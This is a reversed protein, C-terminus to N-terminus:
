RARFLSKLWFYVKFPPSRHYRDLIVQLEDKHRIVQELYADKEKIVREFYADKERIVQELFRDKDQVIRELETQYLGYDSARHPNKCFEILPEAVREWALQRRAKEFSHSYMQRLNPTDLLGMLTDVWQNVDAYDVTQGIGYGEIIESTADGKTAVVPLGAWTYDLVRTRFALRAEIHEFHASIGIDAELLYNQREDYAVWDNFFVYRDYLGLDKSLQVAQAYMRMEPVVVNPHRTGMFFLKVDDRKEAIERMAKIPTLPDLWEWIGGAWLIVRDEEGINRWVGKLVRKTHRPPESPLGFPVVNVLHRLTADERYIHPNIRKNASLMGLWYDRQRESACIFFDGARLQENLVRLYEQYAAIWEEADEGAHMELSELIFPIYVDVVIPLGADKLFPFFHLIFGQVVLVDSDVVLRRLAEGEPDYRQVALNPHSIGTENPVALTVINDRSLVKALEWNRVGPGAMNEGVVDGSVILIRSM